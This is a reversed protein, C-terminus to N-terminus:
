KALIRRQRLTPWEGGPGQGVARIDFEGRRTWRFTHDPDWPENRAVTVWSTGGRERYQWVILDIQGVPRKGDDGKDPGWVARTGFPVLGSEPSYSTITIAPPLTAGTPMPFPRPPAQPTAIGIARHWARVAPYDNAGGPRTGAFWLGGLIKESRSRLIEAQHLQHLALARGDAPWTKNRDYGQLIAVWPTSVRGVRTFAAEYREVLRDLANSWVQDPSDLYFAPGLLDVARPIAFDPRALLRDTIYWLIPRPSLGAAAWERQLRRIEEDLPAGLQEIGTYLACIDGGRSMWAGWESLTEGAEWAAVVSTGPKVRELERAHEIVHLGWRETAVGPLDGYKDSIGYFYGLRISRSISPAVPSVPEGEPMGSADACPMWAVTLQGTASCGAATWWGSGCLRIGWYASGIDWVVRPAIGDGHRRWVLGERNSPASTATWIDRGSSAYRGPTEGEWPTVTVDVDSGDRFVMGSKGFYGYGIVGDDGLAM